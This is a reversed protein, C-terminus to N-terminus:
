LGRQKLAAVIQVYFERVDFGPINERNLDIMDAHSIGRVGNPELWTFREGWPFSPQAVLGDNPGDFWKVLPYTFNLPFKGTTAHALKSGVSQCVIGAFPSTRPVPSAPSAPTATMGARTYSQRSQSVADSPVAWPGSAQSLHENVAIPSPEAPADSTHQASVGSATGGPVGGATVIPAGGTTRGSVSGATTGLASGASGRQWLGNLQDWDGIEANLRACGAQTLDHVAAMFDPHADGLRSAAANYTAAVKSQAGAPINTLLYDAFGCGRHPTNVTTLSAVYPAAGCRAIAYRMDLGGKSHAIVNVKGCGTMEVIRRIRATLERAADPVSAASQHEGYYITAGNRQLEAPVRGWYNLAQTDRFFVGHVLLVPYRTACIRAGARSRDLREKATEFRVEEGVTRIILNLAILNAIPIWGCLIGIVRIKLGLQVSTVYVTIIGIWFIISEILMVGALAAAWVPWAEGWAAPWGYALMTVLSLILGITAALTTWWFIRLMIVGFRCATIRNTM